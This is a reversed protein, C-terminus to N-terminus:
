RSHLHCIEPSLLVLLTPAAILFVRDIAVTGFMMETSSLAGLLVQIFSVARWGVRFPKLIKFFKNQIKIIIVQELGDVCLQPWRKLRDTLWLFKFQLAVSHLLNLWNCEFETTKPKGDQCNSTQKMRSILLCSTVQKWQNYIMPQRSAYDYYSPWGQSRALCVQGYYQTSQCPRNGAKNNITTGM